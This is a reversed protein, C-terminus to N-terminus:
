HRDTCGATGSPAMVLAPPKNPTIHRKLTVILWFLFTYSAKQPFADLEWAHSTGRMETQMTSAGAGATKM